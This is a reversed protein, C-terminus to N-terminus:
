LVKDLLELLRSQQRKQGFLDKIIARNKEKSKASLPRLEKLNNICSVEVDNSILFEYLPSRQHLYVHSGNLLGAVINGGAQQRIHNMIIIECRLLINHYDEIALFDNLVVVRNKGLKEEAYKQIMKAIGKEGYSLPLIIKRNTLDIKKLHNIAEFHNNSFTASNGLLIDHGNVTRENQERVQHNVYNLHFCSTNVKYNEKLVKYDGPVVPVIFKFKNMAVLLLRGENTIDNIIPFNNKIIHKLFPLFGLKFYYQKAFRKTTKLLITNQLKGLRYIDAGWSFWILPLKSPIVKMIQRTDKSSLLHIIVVDFDDYFSKSFPLKEVWTNEITELEFLVKVSTRFEQGKIVSHLIKIKKDSSNKM